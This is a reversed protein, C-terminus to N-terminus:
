CDLTTEREWPTIQRSYEQWQQKKLKVYADVFADGLAARFM